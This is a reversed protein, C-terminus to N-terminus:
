SEPSFEKIVQDFLENAVKPNAKGQTAKMIQGIFYGRLTTKGGLYEERQKSSDNLIQKILPLLTEPSDIQQLGSEEIIEGAPRGTRFMTEFVSKAIKGSIQKSEISKLLGALLEPSVPSQELELEARNLAGFLETTLWNAALKPSVGSRVTAEFFQATRKENAILKADYESLEYEQVLKVAQQKPLLPLRSKVEQIWRDTVMIPPLDPDPFYRYDASDEKTRMTRTKGTEADFLRTEQTVSKGQKILALQRAVEFHIAQELFKFSNLNKIETRVGFEQSGVPRLSVNADCRLNGEEMNGDCIDLYTVIQHLSKLYAAAESPSRMDPESVVELLPVGARNLDVQSIGQSPSHLSKGADEELHIRTLGVIRNGSDLDVEIQGRECIPEEFQSIQYGKPLDPYFYHKRAFQSFRRIECNTALGLAIASEVAKRNVVPLSGPLGLVVPDTNSNPQEGFRTSSPSFLKSETNLQVHVELGIVTEYEKDM